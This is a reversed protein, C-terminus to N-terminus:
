AGKEATTTTNTDPSKSSINNNNDPNTESSGTSSSETTVTTTNDGSTDRKYRYGGREFESCDVDMFVQYHLRENNKMRFLSDLKCLKLIQILVKIFYTNFRVSLNM